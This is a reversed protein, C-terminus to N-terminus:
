PHVIVTVGGGPKKAPKIKEPLTVLFNGGSGGNGTPFHNLFTGNLHNGAVDTVISSRVLFTAKKAFGKRTSFTIAASVVTGSGSVNLTTISGVGKGSIAYAAPNALSAINLGASDQFVVLVQKVKANFTASNIVPGALDIILPKAATTLAGSAMSGKADVSQVTFQYSDAPLAFSTISWNGSTDAVASGVPTPITFSQL